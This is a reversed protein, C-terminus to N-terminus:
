IKQMAVVWDVYVDCAAQGSGPQSVALYPQMSLNDPWNADAGVDSKTLVNQGNVFFQLQNAGTAPTLLFGLKISTYAAMATNVTSSSAVGVSTIGTSNQYVGKVTPLSGAYGGTLAVLGVGYAATNLTAGGSAFAKTGSVATGYQMLGVFFGVDNAFSSVTISCEFAVVGGTNKTPSFSGSNGDGFEVDLAHSATNDLHLDMFGGPTIVSNISNAMKITSSSSEYTTAVFHDGTILGVNSSVVDKFSVFDTFFFLGENNDTTILDDAAFQFWPSVGRGANQDQQQVKLGM